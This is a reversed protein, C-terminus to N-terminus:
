LNAYYRIYNKNTKVYSPQKFRTTNKFGESMPKNIEALGNKDSNFDLYSQM